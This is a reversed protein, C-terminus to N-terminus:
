VSYHVLGKGLPYASYHVLGKGIPYASYHVLGKGLPYTGLKKQSNTSLGIM